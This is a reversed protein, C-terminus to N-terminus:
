ADSTLVSVFKPTGFNIYSNIISDRMAEVEFLDDDDGAFILEYEKHFLNTEKDFAYATLKVDHEEIFAYPIFTYKTADVVQMCELMVSRTNSMASFFVKDWTLSESHDHTVYRKFELINSESM